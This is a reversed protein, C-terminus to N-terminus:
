YDLPRRLTQPVVGDFAHIIQLSIATLGSWDLARAATADRGALEVKRRYASHIEAKGMVEGQYCRLAENYGRWQVPRLDGNEDELVDAGLYLEISGALTNVNALAPGSPGITPYSNLVNLEPYHMVAINDPLTVQDLARQAERSASDNDFIAIMRNTIGAASFAKITAVLASAGGPARSAEFNLFTYYDALHPYLFALAAKLIAGDTSGETLIIRPANEPHGAVLSEICDSCVPEDPVYYGSSILESIDQVVLDTPEMSECAFRVLARFDNCFFGFQFGERDNLVYREIPDLEAKANEEHKYGLLGRRMVRGLASSLNEYSVSKILEIEKGYDRDGERGM